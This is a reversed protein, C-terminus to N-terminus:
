GHRLFYWPWLLGLSVAEALLMLLHANGCGVDLITPYTAATDTSVGFHDIVWEVMEEASEQGFWVEGEDGIETFTQVERAYVADWSSRSLSLRM